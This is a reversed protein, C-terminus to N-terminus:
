IYIRSIVVFFCLAFSTCSVHRIFDLLLDHTLDLFVTRDKQFDRRHLIADSTRYTAVTLFVKIVTM